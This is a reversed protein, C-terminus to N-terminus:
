PIIHQELNRLYPQGLTTTTESPWALDDQSVAITIKKDGYAAYKSLDDNESTSFLSLMQASRSSYGGGAGRRATVSTPQTFVFIACTEKDPHLYEMGSQGPFFQNLIESGKMVKIQGEFVQLGANKAEAVRKEHAASSTAAAKEQIKQELAAVTDKRIKLAERLPELNSTDSWKEIEASTDKYVQPVNFETFSEQHVKLIEGDKVQWLTLEGDGTASNLTLHQLEDKNKSPNLSAEFSSSGFGSTFVKDTKILTNSNASYLYPRIFSLSGLYMGKADQSILLAPIGSQDIDVLAYSYSISQANWIEAPDAQVAEEPANLINLYQVYAQYNPSSLPDQNLAAIGQRNEEDTEASNAAVLETIKNNEVAWISNGIISAIVPHDYSKVWLLKKDASLAAIFYPSHTPDGYVITTDDITGAVTLSSGLNQVQVAPVDVLEKSTIAAPTTTNCVVKGDKVTYPRALSTDCEPLDTIEESTMVNKSGSPDSATAHNTDGSNSPSNTTSNNASTDPSTNPSTGASTNPSAPATGVSNGGTTTESTKPQDKSATANSNSDQKTSSNASPEKKTSDDNASSASGNRQALNIYVAQVERAKSISVLLLRNEDVSEVYRTGDFDPLELVWKAKAGNAYSPNDFIKDKFYFVLGGGILALCLVCSIIAYAWTKKRRKQVPLASPYINANYPQSVSYYQSETTPAM